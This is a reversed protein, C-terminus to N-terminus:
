HALPRRYVSVHARSAATFPARDWGSWRHELELGALRAMLDLEAHGVYRGGIPHVSIGDAGVLVWTATYTGTVPDRRGTTIAVRDGMQDIRSLPQEAPVIAEVV